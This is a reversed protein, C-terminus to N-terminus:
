AMPAEPHGAGDLLARLEASYGRGDREFLPPEMELGGPKGPRGEVLIVRAAVKSSAHVARARKPELGAARLLTFLQALDHAPYVFCARARRGAARRAAKVFVGLDGSRARARAADRSRRGHGEPVYPPNCVVLDADLKAPLADVDACLVQGRAAWGNAALNTQALAATQRDVEVLIIRQAAGLHLLALAVAGCGAGLDVALRAPRVIDVRRAAFAALLLADVNARYGRAPQHLTVRGGFLTDRTQEAAVGRERV